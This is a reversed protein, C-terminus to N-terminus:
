NKNLSLDVENRSSDKKEKILRSVSATVKRDPIALEQAIQRNLKGQKRLELVQQDRMITVWKRDTLAQWPPLDYEQSLEAYKQRVRERTVPEELQRALYALNVPESPHERKHENALILLQFETMRIIELGQHTRHKLHSEEIIKTEREEGM